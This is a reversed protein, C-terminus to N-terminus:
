RMLARADAAPVAPSFLFGQVRNCGNAKLFEFQEETEVGEAVVELGITHALNVIYSVIAAASPDAPIDRVFAQDIKITKIPFQKLYMLSSQGTGFDDIAIGVGQRRLERLVQMTLDINQVAVSETIELQLMNAPVRNERLAGANNLQVLKRRAVKAVAFSFGKPVERGRLIAEAFKGRFGRIMGGMYTDYYSVLLLRGHAFPADRRCKAGVPAPEACFEAWADMLRKGDDPPLRHHAPM